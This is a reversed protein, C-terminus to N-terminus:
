FPVKDIDDDSVDTSKQESVETLGKDLAIRVEEIKEILKEFDAVISLSIQDRVYHTYGGNLQSKKCHELLWISSRLAVAINNLSHSAQKKNM